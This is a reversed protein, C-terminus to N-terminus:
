KSYFILCQEIQYRPFHKIWFKVHSHVQGQDGSALAVFPPRRDAQLSTVYLLNRTNYVICIIYFTNEFHSVYITFNFMNRAWFAILRRLLNLAIMQLIICKEMRSGLQYYRGEYSEIIMAHPLLKLLYSHSFIGFSAVNVIKLSVGTHWSTSARYLFWRGAM